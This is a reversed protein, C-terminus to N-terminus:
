VKLLKRIDVPENMGPQVKYKMIGSPKNFIDLLTFIMGLSWFVSVPVVVPGYVWLTFADEGVVDLIRNWLAQRFFMVHVSIIIRIGASYYLYLGVM